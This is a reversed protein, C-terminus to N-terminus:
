ARPHGDKPTKAQFCASCEHKPPLRDAVDASVVSDSNNAIERLKSAPAHNMIKHWLAAMTSIKSQKPANLVEGPCLNGFQRRRYQINRLPIQKPRKERPRGCQGQPPLPVVTQETQRIHPKHLTLIM